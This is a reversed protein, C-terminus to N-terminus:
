GKAQENQETNRDKGDSLHARLCAWFSGKKARNLTGGGGGGLVGWNGGKGGGGWFVGKKGGGGLIGGWFM